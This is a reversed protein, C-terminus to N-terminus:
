HKESGRRGFWGVARAQDDRGCWCAVGIALVAAGCLRGVVLAEPSPAAVGFLLWIVMSPRFALALGMTLEIFVAISQLNQGSYM